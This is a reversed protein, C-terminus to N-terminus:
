GQEELYIDWHTLRIKFEQGQTVICILDTQGKETKGDGLPSFAGPLRVHTGWHLSCCVFSWGNWLFQFRKADHEIKTCSKHRGSWTYKWAHQRTFWQFAVSQHKQAAAQFEVNRNKRVEGATNFLKVRLEGDTNRGATRVFMLTSYSNLRHNHSFFFFDREARNVDHLPSPIISWALRLRSKLAGPIRSSGGASFLLFGFHVSVLSFNFPPCHTHLKSSFLRRLACKRPLLKLTCWIEQM